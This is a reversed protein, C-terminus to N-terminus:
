TARLRAWATLTLEVRIMYGEKGRAATVAAKSQGRARLWKAVAKVEVAAAKADASLPKAKGQDTRVKKAAQKIDRVSADAVPKGGPLQGDRLLTTPTDLDPTARSYSLLAIAKEQGVSLAEERSMTSVLQILSRATSASIVNREKLMEDFSKHGLPVHLKKKSLQALALGIDYFDEAIREKRRAIEALLSEARAHDAASVKTATVALAAAVKKAAPRKDAAKGSAGPLAPPKKPSTAPTKSPPSKAAEATTLKATTPKATTPKTATPKTATPKTGTPKAAAPKAAPRTNTVSKAAAPKTHTAKTAAAIAPM